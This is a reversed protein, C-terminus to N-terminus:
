GSTYQDEARARTTPESTAVARKRSDGGERFFKEHLYIRRFTVLLFSLCLCVRVSSNCTEISVKWANRSLTRLANGDITARRASSDGSDEDDVGVVAAIRAASAPSGSARRAARKLPGIVVVVDSVLRAVSRSLTVNREDSSAKAFSLAAAFSVLAHPHVAAWKAAM